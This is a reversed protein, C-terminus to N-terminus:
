QGRGSLMVQMTKIILTIDDLISYEKLYLLDYKLREVNKTVTDAYGVQIQGISTIGPKVTLLRQFDHPAEKMLMDVDYKFLPRPGVM